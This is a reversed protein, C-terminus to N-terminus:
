FLTKYITSQSAVWLICDVPAPVVTHIAALTTEQWGSPLEDSIMTDHSVLVVGVSGTCAFCFTSAFVINASGNGLSRLGDVNVSWVVSDRLHLSLNSLLRKGDREIGATGGELEVLATDNFCSFIATSLEIM